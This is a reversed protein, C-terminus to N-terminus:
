LWVSSLRWKADKLHMELFVKNSFQCFFILIESSTSTNKHSAHQAKLSPASTQLFCKTKQQKKKRRRKVKITKQDRNVTLSILDPGSLYAHAIFDGTLVRRM